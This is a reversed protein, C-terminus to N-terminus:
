DPVGNEPASIPSGNVLPLSENSAERVLGAFLVVDLDPGMTAAQAM